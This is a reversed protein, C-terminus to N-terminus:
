RKPPPDGPISAADDPVSALGAASGIPKESHFGYDEPPMGSTGHNLKWM